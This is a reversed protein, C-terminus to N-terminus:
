ADRAKLTRRGNEEAREVADEILEEVEDDLAAYFESGVNMDGATERVANKVVHESDGM